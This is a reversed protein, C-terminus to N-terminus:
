ETISPKGSQMATLGNRNAAKEKGNMERIAIIWMTLNLVNRHLWGAPM